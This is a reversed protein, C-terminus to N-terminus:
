VDLSCSDISSERRRYSILRVTRRCAGVGMGEFDVEVGRRVEIVQHEALFVHLGASGSFIPLMAVQISRM